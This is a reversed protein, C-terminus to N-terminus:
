SLKKQTKCLINGKKPPLILETGTPDYKVPPLSDNSTDLQPVPDDNSTVPLDVQNTYLINNACVPVDEAISDIVISINDASDMINDIQPSNITGMLDSETVDYMCSKETPCQKYGSGYSHDNTRHINSLRTNILSARTHGSMSLRCCNKLSPVINIAQVVTKCLKTLLLPQFEDKTTSVEAESICVVSTNSNQNIDKDIHDSENETNSEQSARIFMGEGATGVTSTKRSKPLFTVCCAETNRGTAVYTSIKPTNKGIMNTSEELHDKNVGMVTIEIDDDNVDSDPKTNNIGTIHTEDNKVSMASSVYTTQAEGSTSDADRHDLYQKIDSPGSDTPEPEDSSNINKTNHTSVAHVGDCNIIGPAKPQPNISTSAQISLDIASPKSVPDTTKPHTYTPIKCVILKTVPIFPKQKLEAFM